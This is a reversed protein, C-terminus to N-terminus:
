PPDIDRGVKSLIHENSTVKPQLGGAVVMRVNREDVGAERLEELVVPVAHVSVGMWDNIALTVKSNSTVQDALPKTGIPDRIAERVAAPVDELPPPIRDESTNEIVVADDPVEIEWPTERGYDIGGVKM